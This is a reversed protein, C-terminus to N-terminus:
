IFSIKVDGDPTRRYFGLFDKNSARYLSGSFTTFYSIEGDSRFNVIRSTEIVSKWEDNYGVLTARFNLTTEKNDTHTHFVQIYEVTTESDTDPLFIRWNTLDKPM